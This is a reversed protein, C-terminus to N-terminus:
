AHASEGQLSAICTTLVSRSRHLVAQIHSAGVGGLETKHQRLLLELAQCANHLASAKKDVVNAARAIPAVIHEPDADIVTAIAEKVEAGTKVKEIVEGRLVEPLDAIREADAVTIKGEKTLTFAEPVNDRVRAL